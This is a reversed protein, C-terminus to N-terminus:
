SVGSSHVKRIGEEMGSCVMVLCCGVFKGGKIESKYRILQLDSDKIAAGLVKGALTPIVEASVHGSEETDAQRFAKAIM